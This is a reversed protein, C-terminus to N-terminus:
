KPEKEKGRGRQKKGEAPSQGKRRPPRNLSQPEEPKAHLKPPRGPTRKPPAAAPTMFAECSVGLAKVLLLVTAWAPEREGRELKVIAQPHLAAREALQGQTLGAAERLERLRPGFDTASAESM